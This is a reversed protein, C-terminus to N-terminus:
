TKTNRLTNWLNWSGSLCQMLVRIYVLTSSKFVIQTVGVLACLSKEHYNIILIIFLFNPFKLLLSNHFFNIHM